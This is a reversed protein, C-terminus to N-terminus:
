AAGGVLVREIKPLAQEVRERIQEGALSFLPHDIIVAELGTM